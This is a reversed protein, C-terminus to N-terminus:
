AEWLWVMNTVFGVIAGHIVMAPFFVGLVFSTLCLASLVLKVTRDRRIIRVARTIDKLNM